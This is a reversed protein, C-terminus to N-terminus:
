ISRFPVTVRVSLYKLEAINASLAMGIALLLTKYINLVEGIFM